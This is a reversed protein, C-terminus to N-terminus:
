VISLQKELDCVVEIVVDHSALDTDGLREMEGAAADGVESVRPILERVETDTDLRGSGSPTM